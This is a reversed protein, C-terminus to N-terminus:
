KCFSFSFPKLLPKPGLTFINNRRFNIYLYACDCIRYQLWVGLAIEIVSLIVAVLERM